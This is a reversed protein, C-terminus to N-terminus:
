LRTCHDAFGFRLRIFYVTHLIFCRDPIQRDTADKEVTIATIIGPNSTIIYETTLNHHEWQSRLMTRTWRHWRTWTIFASEVGHLRWDESWASTVFLRGHHSDPINGSFGPHASNQCRTIIVLRTLPCPLAIPRTRGDTEVIDKSGLSTQGRSKCTYIMIMSWLKGLTSLWLLLNRNVLITARDTQGRDKISPLKNETARDGSLTVHSVRM